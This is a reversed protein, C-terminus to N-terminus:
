RREFYTWLANALLVSVLPFVSCVDQSSKRIFGFKFRQRWYNWKITRAFYIENIGSRWPLYERSQFGRMIFRLSHCNPSIRNFAITSWSHWFIFEIFCGLNKLYTLVTVDEMIPGIVNGKKAFITQGCSSVGKILGSTNAFVTLDIRSQMWDRSSPLNWKSADNATWQM